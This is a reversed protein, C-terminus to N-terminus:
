TGVDGRMHWRDSIKIVKDPYNDAIENLMKQRHEIDYPLPRKRTRKGPQSAVFSGSLAWPSTLLQSAVILGADHPQGRLYMIGSPAPLGQEFVLSGYGRDCVVLVMEHYSAYHLVDNDPKGKLGDIEAVSWAETGPVIQMIRKAADGPVDEDVLM